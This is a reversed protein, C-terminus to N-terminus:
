NSNAPPNRNVDVDVDVDGVENKVAAGAEQVDNSIHGGIEQAQNAAAAATDRAAEENYELTVQDNATDNNVNCASVLLLPLAYVIRM